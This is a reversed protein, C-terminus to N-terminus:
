GHVGGDALINAGTMYSNDPSVLFVAVQAIDPTFPSNFFASYLNHM